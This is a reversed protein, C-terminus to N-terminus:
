KIADLIIQVIWYALWMVIIGVVVYIIIQRAKKSKEEDWAWTMLQFGAYLIYIVAVLSVFSLFYRVIDTVFVWLTKQSFNDGLARKTAVLGGTLSCEWGIGQCYQIQGVNPTSFGLQWALALNSMMYISIMYILSFSALLFIFKKMYDLHLMHM